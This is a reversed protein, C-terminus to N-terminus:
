RNSFCASLSRVLQGLTEQVGRLTEATRFVGCKDM